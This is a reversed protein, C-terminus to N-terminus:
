GAMMERHRHIRLALSAGLVSVLSLVAALWALDPIATLADRVLTEIALARSDADVAAYLPALANSGETLAFSSGLGIFLLSSIVTSLPRRFSGVGVTRRVIGRRLPGELSRWALALLFLPLAMGLAYLALLAAGAGAGGVTAATTLVGGLIPGACFGGFGYVVGLLYTSLVSDGSLGAGLRELRAAGPLSFGGVSLQYLGIVVLLLGAVATLEARRVLLLGGLAGVGLGLPVLFTALGAFFVTTRVLLRGPAAFAYAFFAPLLLASCPSLLTLAGGALAIAAQALM